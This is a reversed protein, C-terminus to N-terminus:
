QLNLLNVFVVRLQLHRRHLRLLRLLRLLWCRHPISVALDVNLLDLSLTFLLRILGFLLLLALLLFFVLCNSTPEAPVSGICFLVWEELTAGATTADLEDM